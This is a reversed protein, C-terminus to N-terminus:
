SLELYGLEARGTGGAFYPSRRRASSPPDLMSEVPRGTEALVYHGGPAAHTM